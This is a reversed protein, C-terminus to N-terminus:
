YVRLIIYFEKGFKTPRANDLASSVKFLTIHLIIIHPANEINSM